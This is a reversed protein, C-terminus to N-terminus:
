AAPSREGRLLETAPRVRRSRPRGNRAATAVAEARVFAAPARGAAGFRWRLWDVIREAARGDGFVDHGDGGAARVGGNTVAAAVAAQIADRRVGILQAAGAAVAEPRETRARLILSPVGLATAEEVVGGSDTVALDARALTAVFQPYPLPETLLVNPPLARSLFSRRVIPNPHVPLLFGAEPHRRALADLAAAVEDLPAGWSERRHATVVIRRRWGNACFAAVPGNLRPRESALLSHLADVITNGTTFVDTGTIGEAVLNAAAAATPPFFFTTVVDILRRNMEEPFPEYRSHTRLGAEVHAVPLREYFAALAGAFATTTDGQVVVVDPRERLLVEGFRGLADATLEHLTRGTSFGEAQSDLALGFHDLAELMERPHQGSGVLRVEVDPRERAALALPALKVAEPRTGVFALLRLVHGEERRAALRATTLGHPVVGNARHVDPPPRQSAGVDGTEREQGSGHQPRTATM